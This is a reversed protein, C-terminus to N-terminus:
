GFSGKKPLLFPHQQYYQLKSNNLRGGVRMLGDKLFPCLPRLYPSCLLNRELLSIDFRSHKRQFLKLLIIEAKELDSLLITGKTLLIRAFKVM